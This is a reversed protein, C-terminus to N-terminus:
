PLSIRHEIRKKEGNEEWEFTVTASSATGMAVWMPWAFNSHPILDFSRATEEDIHVHQTFEGFDVTLNEATVADSLNEVVMKYRNTFKPAGKKDIGTQERQKDIRGRVQASQGRSKITVHGLGLSDLDHELTNRVQFMLDDAGTYSGLLGQMQLQAKFDRLRQLQDLDADRPIAESSFWVHVPKGAEAARTIEEATGSVATDTATGLRSDFVAVVIDCSDVAQANIINQPAAGLLPVANDEWRWPVLVTQAAEARSANWTMVARLIADREP